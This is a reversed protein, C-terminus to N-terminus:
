TLNFDVKNMEIQETITEILLIMHNQEYFYTIKFILNIQVSQLNKREITLPKNIKKVM